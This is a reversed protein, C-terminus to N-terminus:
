NSFDTNDFTDQGDWSSFLAFSQTTESDHTYKGKRCSIVTEEGESRECVRVEIETDLPGKVNRTM